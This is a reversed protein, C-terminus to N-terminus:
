AKKNVGIICSMISAFIIIFSYVIVNFGFSNKFIFNILMDLLVLIIGFRLGEILGKKTCNKGFKFGGIFISIYLIFIKFIYIINKNLSTFYHILTLIISFVLVASLVYIFSIGLKKIYDM